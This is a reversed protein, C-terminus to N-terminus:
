VPKAEGLRRHILSPSVGLARAAPRVGGYREVAQKAGLPTLGHRPRGVEVGRARAADLGAQIRERALNSELEAFAGAIQFMAMGIPTSTDINEMYSVFEVGRARCDGLFGVLHSLSRALRDFRWVAVIDLRGKHLDNMLRDLAPRKDKRGSEGEDTYVGVIEWERALALRELAEQQYATGHKDAQAQTSVRTYLGVRQRKQRM